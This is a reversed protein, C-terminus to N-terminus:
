SGSTIADMYVAWSNSMLGTWTAVLAPQPSSVLLTAGQIYGTTADRTAFTWGSPLGIGDSGMSINSVVALLLNNANTTAVTGTPTTTAPHPSGQWDIAFPVVGDYSPHVFHAVTWDLRVGDPRTRSM